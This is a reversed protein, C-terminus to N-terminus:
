KEIKVLWMNLVNEIKKKEKGNLYKNKGWIM